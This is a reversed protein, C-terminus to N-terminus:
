LGSGGGDDGGGHGDSDDGGASRPMSMNAQQFLPGLQSLDAMDGLEVSFGQPM